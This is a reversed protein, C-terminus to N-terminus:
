RPHVCRQTLVGLDNGGRQRAKPRPAALEARLRQPALLPQVVEGHLLAALQRPLPDGGYLRAVELPRQVGDEWDHILLLLPLDLLADLTSEAQEVQGAKGRTCLRAGRWRPESADLLREPDVLGNPVVDLHHAEETTELRAQAERLIVNQQELLDVLV